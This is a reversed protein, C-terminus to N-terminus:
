PTLESTQTTPDVDDSDADRVELCDKRFADFKVDTPVLGERRLCSWALYALWFNPGDVAKPWNRAGRVQDYDSLDQGEAQLEVELYEGKDRASYDPIVCVLRPAKLQPAKGVNRSKVAM